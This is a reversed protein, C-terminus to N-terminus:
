KQKNGGKPAPDFARFGTKELNRMFIRILQEDWKGKLLEQEKAWKDLEYRDWGLKVGQTVAKIQEDTLTLQKEALTVQFAAIAQRSKVEAIRENYTEQNFETTNIKDEAETALRRSESIINDQMATITDPTGRLEADLKKIENDYGTGTTQAKKQEASAKLDEAQAKMVEMQVSQMTRQMGMGMMAEIEGGGSPASAGSVNGGSSGTTAGGTGNMGYILSPNLGAKRLQQMQGQVGTKLWMEYQQEQEFESMEKRNKMEMQWLKDQQMRQRRDNYNGLLMGMGADVANGAAQMGINNWISGM